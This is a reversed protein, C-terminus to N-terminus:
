GRRRRVGRERGRGARWVNQRETSTGNLSVGDEASCPFLQFLLENKMITGLVKALSRTPLNLM